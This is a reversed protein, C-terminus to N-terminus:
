GDSMGIKGQFRLSSYLMSVSTALAVLWVALGVQKLFHHGMPSLLNPVFRALLSVGLKLTTIAVVLRERFCSFQIFVQATISVVVVYAMIDVWYVEREEVFPRWSVFLEYACFAVLAVAVGVSRNACWRSHPDPSQTADNIAVLGTEGEAEKHKAGHSM